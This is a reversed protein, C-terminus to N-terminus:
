HESSAQSILVVNVGGTELVGFVRRDVGIVGVLGAGEVNIMAMNEMSSFGTVAKDRDHHSSSSVFIRSGPLSANFTNKIYIPIQPEALIAPQM